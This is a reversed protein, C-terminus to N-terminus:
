IPIYHSLCMLAACASRIIVIKTANTIRLTPTEQIFIEIFAPHPPFPTGPGDGHNKDYKEREMNEEKNNRLTPYMTPLAPNRSVQRWNAM